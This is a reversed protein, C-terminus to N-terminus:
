EEISKLGMKTSWLSFGLTVLVPIFAIKIFNVNCKFNTIWICLSLIFTYIVMLYAYSLIIFQMLKKGNETQQYRVIKSSNAIIAIM